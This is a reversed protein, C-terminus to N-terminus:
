KREDFRNKEMKREDNSSIKPVDIWSDAGKRDNAMIDQLRRKLTDRDKNTKDPIFKERVYAGSNVIYDQSRKRSSSPRICIPPESRLGFKIESPFRKPQHSVDNRRLFYDKQRLATSMKSEELLM